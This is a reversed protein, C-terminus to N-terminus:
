FLVDDVLYWTGFGVRGLEVVWGSDWWVGVRGSGGRVFCRATRRRHGREFEGGIWHFVDDGVGLGRPSGGGSGFWGGKEGAWGGDWGWGWGQGEGGGGGGGVGGGRGGEQEDGGFEPQEDVAGEEAGGGDGEVGGGLGGVGAAM